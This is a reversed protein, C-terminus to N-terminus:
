ALGAGHFDPSARTSFPSVTATGAGSVRLSKSRIEPM